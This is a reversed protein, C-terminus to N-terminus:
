KEQKNFISRLHEEVIGKAGLGLAIAFGLGVSAVIILIADNLLTFNLDIQELALLVTFVIVSINIVKAFTMGGKINNAKSSNEVVNQCFRGFILGAFLIVIAVFLKPIFMLLSLLMSRVAALGLADAAAVIFAILVVWSLVLAVIYTPSKGFGIRTLIENVGIKSTWNDLKLSNLIKYSFTSVWRSLFLGLFLMILAAIIGPILEVSKNFLFVFPEATKTAFLEIGPNM